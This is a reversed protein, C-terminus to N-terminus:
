GESADKGHSAAFEKAEHNTFSTNFGFRFFDLGDQVHSGRGGLALHLAKCSAQYGQCTKNGAECVPAIGEKLQELCLMSFFDSPARFM